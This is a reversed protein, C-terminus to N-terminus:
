ILTLQGEQRACYVPPFPSLSWFSALKHIAGERELRDVENWTGGRLVEFRIDHDLQDLTGAFEFRAKAVPDTMLWIDDVDTAGPIFQSGCYPCTIPKDYRGDWELPAGCNPCQLQNLSTM